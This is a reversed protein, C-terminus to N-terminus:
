PQSLGPAATSCNEVAGGAPPMVKPQLECLEKALSRAQTLAPSIPKRDAVAVDTIQDKDIGILRSRADDIENGARESVRALWLRDSGEAVFLGSVAKKNERIIAAGRVQEDSSERSYAIYGEFLGVLVFTSAALYLFRRTRSGIVAALAACAVIIGLAIGFQSTDLDDSFALLMVVLAIAIFWFMAASSEGSRARRAQSQMWGSSPPHLKRTLVSVATYTLTLLLVVVLAAVIQPVLTEAGIVLLDQSPVVGLAPAAPFGAANLRAWVVAGGIFTVFGIVGVGTAVAALVPAIQSWPTESEAETDEITPPEPSASVAVKTGLGSELVEAVSTIVAPSLDPLDALYEGEKLVFELEVLVGQDANVGGLRVHDVRPVQASVEDTLRKELRPRSLWVEHVIEEDAVRRDREAPTVATFRRVASLRFQQRGVETDAM